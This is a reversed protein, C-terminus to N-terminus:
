KEDVVGLSTAQFTRFSMGGSISRGMEAVIRAAWGRMAGSRHFAVDMDVAWWAPRDGAAWTRHIRLVRPRNQRDSDSGGTPFVVPRAAVTKPKVVRRLRHLCPLSRLHEMYARMLLPSPGQEEGQISVWAHHVRDDLQDVILDVANAWSKGDFDNAFFAYENMPPPWVGHMAKSPSPDDEVNYGVPIDDPGDYDDGYDDNDEDYDDNDEDYDDHDEDYYDNYPGASIETYTSDDDPDDDYPGGYPDEDDDFMHVIGWTSLM